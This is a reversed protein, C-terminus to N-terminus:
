ESELTVTGIDTTQGATVPIDFLVSDRYTGATASFNLDYDGAPLMAFRFAGSLTDAYAVVTDDAATTWVMARAEVPEVVGALSGSTQNVIVRIVPKMKYQGNGTMHVSQDADFDLTVEYMAGADITFPHNLKLGTNASSPVELDYAVSDVVVNNGDGLILRIQTYYGSPLTSDALVVSNGDTLTLLDVYTTDVDITHWGSGDDKEEDSEDGRHVEVRIVEVNVQDYDGPADIMNVRMFGTGGTDPETSDSCGAMTGAWILCLALVPILLYKKM